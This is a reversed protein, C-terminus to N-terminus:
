RAGEKLYRDINKTITMNQTYSYGTAVQTRHALLINARALEELAKKAKRRDVGVWVAIGRSTEICNPNEKYFKVIKVRLPSKFVENMEM